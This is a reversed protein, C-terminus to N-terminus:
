VSLRKIYSKIEPVAKITGYVKAEKIVKEALEPPVDEDVILTGIVFLKIRFNILSYKELQSKSLRLVGIGGVTKKDAEKKRSVVEKLNEDSVVAEHSHMQNRIATRIFDSRSSYFGQEVLFDIKALDVSSLNLTIKEQGGM